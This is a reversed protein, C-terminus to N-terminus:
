VSCCVGADEDHSCSNDGWKQRKCHALMMEEGTCKVGSLWVKGSGANNFKGGFEKVAQGSRMGMSACVVRADMTSFSDGCVSGWKGEHLVEVRCGVTNCDRLRTHASDGGPCAELGSGRPGLAGAPGPLGAGGKPGPKGRSGPKGSKGRPGRPGPPGRPGVQSLSFARAIHRLKQGGKRSEQTRPPNRLPTHSAPPSRTHACSKATPYPPPVIGVQGRGGPRGPSGPAGNQGPPGPSGTPGRRGPQTSLAMIVPEYKDDADALSEEAGEVKGEIRRHIERMESEQERQL